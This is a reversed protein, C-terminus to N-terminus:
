PTFDIEMVGLLDIVTDNLIELVALLFRNFRGDRGEGEGETNGTLVEVAEHATVNSDLASEGLIDNIHDAISVLHEIHEPLIIHDIALNVWRGPDEETLIVEAVAIDDIIGDRWSVSRM